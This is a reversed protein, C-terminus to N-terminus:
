ESVRSNLGRLQASNSLPASKRRQALEDVLRKAGAAAQFPKFASTADCNMSARTRDILSSPLDSKRSGLTAVQQAIIVIIHRRDEPPHFSQHKTRAFM